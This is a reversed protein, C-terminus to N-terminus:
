DMTISFYVIKEDEYINFGGYLKDARHLNDWANSQLWTLNESGEFIKPRYQEKVKYWDDVKIYKDWNEDSLRFYGHVTYMSPGPVRSDYNNEHACHFDLIDDKDFGKFFSEVEEFDAPAYETIMINEELSDPNNEPNNKISQRITCSSLVAVLILAVVVFVNKRM